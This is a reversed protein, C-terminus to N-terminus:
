AAGRELEEVRQPLACPRLDARHEVCGGETVFTAVRGAFMAVEGAGEDADGCRVEISRREVGVERVEDISRHFVRAIPVLMFTATVPPVPDHSRPSPGTTMAARSSFPWVTVLRSRATGPPMSRRPKM